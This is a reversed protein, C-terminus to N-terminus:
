KVFFQYLDRCNAYYDCSGWERFEMSDEYKKDQEKIIKKYTKKTKESLRMKIMEMIEISEEDNLHFTIKAGDYRSGYGFDVKLEVAPIDNDFRKGSIDSYYESQEKVQPQIIRKM